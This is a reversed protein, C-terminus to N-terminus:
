LSKGEKIRNKTLEIARPSIDCGIFSRNLKQCAIATTGSGMYFDAVLDGENSSALIIRNILEIPKQTPYGVREKCTPQLHQLEWVDHLPVGKNEQTRKIFNGDADKLRTL